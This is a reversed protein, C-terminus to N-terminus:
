RFRIVYRVMGRYDGGVGLDGLVMFQNTLGSVRMSRSSDPAPDVTGFDVDLRDFISSSQPQRVKRLFKATFNSCWLMSARSAIVSHQQGTGIANHRPWCRSSKKQPLPPESTFSLKRSSRGGTFM